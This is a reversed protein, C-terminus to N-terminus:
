KKTWLSLFVRSASASASTKLIVHASNSFFVVGFALGREGEPIVAGLESERAASAEDLNPVNEPETAFWLAM